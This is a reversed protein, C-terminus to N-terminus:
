NEIANEITNKLSYMDRKLAEESKEKTKNALLKTFPNLGLNWFQTQTVITQNGQPKAQILFVGKKEGEKYHIVEIGLAKDAVSTEITHMEDDRGVYVLTNDDKIETQIGSLGNMWIPFNSPNKFYTFVSDSPANIVVDKKLVIQQPMLLSLLMIGAVATVLAILVGKTHQFM